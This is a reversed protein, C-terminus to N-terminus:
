WNEYLCQGASVVFVVAGAYPIARALMKKACRKAILAVGTEALDKLSEGLLLCGVVDSFGVKTSVNSMFDYEMLAYATLIINPDNAEFDERYDYGNAALYEEAFPFLPQIIEILEELPIEGSKTQVNQLCSLSAFFDHSGVITTVEGNDATLDDKSCGAAM